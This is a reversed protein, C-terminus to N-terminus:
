FLYHNSHMQTLSSHVVLISLSLNANASILINKRSRLDEHRHTGIICTRPHSATCNPLNTGVTRLFMSGGGGPHLFLYSAPSNGKFVLVWRGFRVADCGLLNYDQFLHTIDPIYRSCLSDVQQFQHGSPRPNSNALPM